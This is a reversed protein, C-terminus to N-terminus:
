QGMDMFFDHEIKHKGPANKTTAGHIFMVALGCLCLYVLAAILLTM